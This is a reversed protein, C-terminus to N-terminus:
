IASLRGRTAATYGIPLEAGNEGRGIPAVRQTLLQQGECERHDQFSSEDHGTL